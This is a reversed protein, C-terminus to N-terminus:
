RKLMKLSKNGCSIVYVGTPEGSFDLIAGSRTYKCEVGSASYVRAISCQSTDSFTIIGRPDIQVGSLNCDIIIDDIGSLDSFEYRAVDELNLSISGINIRTGTFSIEEADEVPIIVTEGWTKHLVLNQTSAKAAISSLISIITIIIFHKM